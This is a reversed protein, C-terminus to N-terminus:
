GLVRCAGAKGTPVVRDLGTNEIVDRVLGADWFGALINKTDV